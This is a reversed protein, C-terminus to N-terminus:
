NNNIMAKKMTIRKILLFLRNKQQKDIFKFKITIQVLLKYIYKYDDQLDQFLNLNYDITFLENCIFNGEIKTNNLKELLFYIYKISDSKINVKHISSNCKNKKKPPSKELCEGKTRYYGSEKMLYYSNSLFFLSISMITDEFISIYEETYNHGIYELVKKFLKNRILKSCINRNLYSWQNEKNKMKIFKYKLEPQYIIRNKLNDVPELNNEIRKFLSNVFYALKFEVVDLDAIIAINLCNSLINRKALGDDGDIITIYKGRAIKIADSRSKIKGYNNSHKLLIIRNDEKQYKLIVEISDDSSCDDVIVIEINQLLQNQVSRLAKYICHGQNYNTIIVSIEPNKNKQHFNMYNNEILKDSKNIKWYKKISSIENEIFFTYLFSKSSSNEFQEIRKYLPDFNNSKRTEIIFFFILIFILLTISTIKINWNDSSIIWKEKKNCKWKTM